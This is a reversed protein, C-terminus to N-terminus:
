RNSILRTREFLRIKDRYYSLRQPTVANHDEDEIDGDLKKALFQAMQYMHEFATMANAESPLQIFLTLGPTNFQHMTDPNFVGPQVCNALSFEIVGEPNRYHFIDMPGHRLEAILLLDLVAGGAFESQEKAMVHIIVLDEVPESRPNGSSKDDSPQSQSASAPDATAAPPSDAAATEPALQSSTATVPTDKVIEFDLETQSGAADEAAPATSDENVLNVREMLMPVREHLNLPRNISEKVGMDSSSDTPPNSAAIIARDNTVERQRFPNNQPPLKPQPARMRRLGDVLIVVMALLGIVVLLGKLEM